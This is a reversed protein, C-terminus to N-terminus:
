LLISASNRLGYWKMLLYNQIETSNQNDTWLDPFIFYIKLQILILWDVKFLNVHVRM